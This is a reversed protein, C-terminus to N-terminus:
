FGKSSHEKQTSHPLAHPCFSCQKSYYLKDLTIMPKKSFIQSVCFKYIIQLFVNEQTWVSLLFSFLPDIMRTFLLDDRRTQTSYLKDYGRSVRWRHDWKDIKSRRSADTNFESQEIAPKFSRMSVKFPILLLEMYSILTQLLSYSLSLSLARRCGVTESKMLCKWQM